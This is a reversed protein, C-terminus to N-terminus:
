DRAFLEADEGDEARLESRVSRPRPQRVKDGTLFGHTNKEQEKQGDGFKRVGPSHVSREEDAGIASSSGAIMDQGELSSRQNWPEGGGDVDDREDGM